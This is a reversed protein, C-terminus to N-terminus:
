KTQGIAYAKLWDDADIFMKSALKVKSNPKDRFEDVYVRCVVLDDANKFRKLYDICEQKDPLIHFGSIFGKGVVKGPNWVRKIDAELVVDLPLARSGQVGHFLTKPGPTRFLRYAVHPTKKNM